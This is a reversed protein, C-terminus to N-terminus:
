KLALQHVLVQFLYELVEMHRLAEDVDRGWTYLGHRAMLFGYQLLPDGARFRPELHNALSVIDQTNPVILIDVNTEHTTVGNLGKLMEQGELRIRGDSLYRDSLVNSWVSHTHLVAGVNERCRAVVVHLMTEASSKPQGDAVPAGTEDVLVFDHDSLEGKHKGSATILLELPNSQLVVSYNSSTAWSWGRKISFAALTKSKKSTIKM